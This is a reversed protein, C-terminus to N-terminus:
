AFFGSYARRRLTYERRDISEIAILVSHHAM